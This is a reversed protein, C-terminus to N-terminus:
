RWREDEQFIYVYGAFRERSTHIYKVPFDRERRTYIDINIVVCVCVCVYLCM